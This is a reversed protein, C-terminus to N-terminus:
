PKRKARIRKVQLYIILAGCVVFFVVWATFAFEIGTM